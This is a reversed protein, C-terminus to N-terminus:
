VAAKHWLSFNEAGASVTQEARNDGFTEVLYDIFARIKRSTYDRHAFLTCLPQEIPEYEPTKAGLEILPSRYQPFM